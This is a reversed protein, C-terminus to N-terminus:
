RWFVRQVLLVFVTTLSSGITAWFEAFSVLNMSSSSLAAKFAAFGIFLGSRITDGHFGHFKDITLRRCGASSKSRILRQHCIQELSSHNGNNLLTIYIIRSAVPWNRQQVAQLFYVHDHDPWSHLRWGFMEQSFGFIADSGVFRNWMCKVNQATNLVLSFDFPGLEVNRKKIPFFRKAFNLM